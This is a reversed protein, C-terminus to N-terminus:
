LLKGKATDTLTNVPATTDKLLLDMSSELVAQQWCADSYHQFPSTCYDGVWVLM